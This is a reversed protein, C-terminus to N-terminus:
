YALQLIIPLGLIIVGLGLAILGKIIAARTGNPLDHPHNSHILVYPRDGNWQGGPAYIKVGAKCQEVRAGKALAYREFERGDRCQDLSKKAM